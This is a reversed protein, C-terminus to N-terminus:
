IKGLLSNLLATAAKPIEHLIGPFLAAFALMFLGHFFNSWQTRTSFRINIVRNGEAHSSDTM